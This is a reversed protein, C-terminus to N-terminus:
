NDLRKKSYKYNNEELLKIFITSARRFDSWAGYDVVWKVLNTFSLNPHSIIYDIIDSVKSDEDKGYSNVARKLKLLFQPTGICENFSYNFKNDYDYHLLYLLIDNLNRVPQFYNSPIGLEESLSNLWKYNNFSLVVHYHPKIIEGTETNTDKDHLIYIYEGLSFLKQKFTDFSLTDSDQYLIITWYKSRVNKM